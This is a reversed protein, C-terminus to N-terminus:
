PTKPNIAGPLPLNEAKARLMLALTKGGGASISFVGTKEAPNTKLLERYVAVADDMGAPYSFGPPM